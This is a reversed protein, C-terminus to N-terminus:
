ATGTRAFRSVDIVRDAVRERVDDDHFIGLIAAGAAKKEAILTVVVDRNRADLSATPEDLLLIPLDAIFGRAINVRQQEGGSFTAPPLPWLREPINLRGLLDAARAHAADAPVGRQTAPEAVIDIASVRPLVRLFQSVYGISSRRLALMQRPEASAIDIAGGATRVRVSGEDTRYNGYIMKLLSSKGVGSPGGLAVCEGPFVEFAVGSVVPLAIGGQLHMTFCKGAAEVSIAPQM